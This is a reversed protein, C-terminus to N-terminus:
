SRNRALGSCNSQAIGSVPARGCGLVLVKANGLLVDANGVVASLSEGPKGLWKFAPSLEFPGRGGTGVKGPFRDLREVNSPDDSM